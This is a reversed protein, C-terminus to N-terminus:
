RPREEGAKAKSLAEAYDDDSLALIMVPKADDDLGYVYDWGEGTYAFHMKALRDPDPAARLYVEAIPLLDSGADLFAELGGRVERTSGEVEVTNGNPGQLQLTFMTIPPRDAPQRREVTEVAQDKFDRYAIALDKGVEEGLREGAKTFFGKLFWMAAIPPTGLGILLLADPVASFRMANDFADASGAKAASNRLAEIDTSEYSRSDTTIELPGEEAQVPPLEAMEEHFERAAKLVVPVTGEFIEMETELAVEGDPLEVLKPNMMRGVPAVTPDHEVNVPKPSAQLQELMGEVAERTIVYEGHVGSRIIQGRLGKRRSTGEEEPVDSINPM